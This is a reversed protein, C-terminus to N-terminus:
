RQVGKPLPVPPSLPSFNSEAPLFFGQLAGDRVVLWAEHVQRGEVAFVTNLPQYVVGQPLVGMARWRSGAPLVRRYGTSLLIPQDQAVQFEDVASALPQLRTPTVPVPAACAGIALPLLIFCARHTARV